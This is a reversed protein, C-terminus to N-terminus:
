DDDDADEQNEYDGDFPGDENDSADSFEDDTDSVAPESATESSVHDLPVETVDSSTDGDDDEEEENEDM